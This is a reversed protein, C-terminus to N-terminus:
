DFFGMPLPIKVQSLLFCATLLASGFIFSLPPSAALAIIETSLIM